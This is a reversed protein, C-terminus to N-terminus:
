RATPIGESDQEGDPTRARRPSPETQRGAEESLRALEEEDFGEDEEKLVQQARALDKEEVLIDRRSGLVTRAGGAGLMCPIGADTLRARLLRQEVSNSATTLVKLM